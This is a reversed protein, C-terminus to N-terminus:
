YRYTAQVSLIDASSEFEGKLTTGSSSVNNIPTDKIFLHSYSADLEVGNNFQYGAGICERRAGKPV